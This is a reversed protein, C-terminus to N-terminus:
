KFRIINPVPCEKCVTKRFEGFEDLFATESVARMRLFLAACDKFGKRFAPYFRGSMIIINFHIFLKTYVLM